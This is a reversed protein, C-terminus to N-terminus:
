SVGMAIVLAALHKCPTQGQFQAAPCTCSKANVDVRYALGDESFSAVQYVGPTPDSEAHVKGAALADAARHIPDADLVPATRMTM